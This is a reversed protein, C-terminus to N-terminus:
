LTCGYCQLLLVVAEHGGEVAYSLPTKGGRDKLDVDVQGTALLLKVVTEYGEKAAYSLPTEGWRDKSNVDVQGTALLLTVIAEYGYQAAHSLPSWGLWDKLNVDVQGTALLLAVIAEHGNEAAHGLPTWGGPTDDSNVDVQGTALLLAVVAEHGNQVAYMFPSVVDVQGTAMLLTVIADHGNGAAYSLPTRDKSDRLDLENDSTSIFHETVEQIGFYAALHLGTMQSPFEQSYGLYEPRRAAMLAQIQAEVKSESNLFDIVVQSPVARAAERAHHGWNHAAYDYLQNSRLRAEFEVDELCSGNAFASFSLYTVCIDTISTAADPFWQKWTRLFYEQTTYHVLRIIGSEQDVTVLGACVSVMDEIQPLNNEDLEPEGVEVGLAHQLEATTLPRKACTIWSLVQKALEEQDTVQGEIREM